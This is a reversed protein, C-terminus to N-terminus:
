RVVGDNGFAGQPLAFSRLSEIAAAFYVFPNM